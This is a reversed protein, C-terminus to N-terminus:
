RGAALRASRSTADALRDDRGARVRVDAAGRMQAM